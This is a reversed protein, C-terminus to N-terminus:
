SVKSVLAIRRSCVLCGTIEPSRLRSTSTSAADAACRYSKGSLPLITPGDQIPTAVSSQPNEEDDM